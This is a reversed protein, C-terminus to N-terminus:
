TSKEADGFKRYADYIIFRSLDMLVMGLQLMEPPTCDDTEVSLIRVAENHKVTQASFVNSTMPIEVQQNM